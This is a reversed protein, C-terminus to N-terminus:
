PTSVWRNRLVDLIWYIFALYTILTFIYAIEGPVGFSDFITSFTAGVYVPGTLFVLLIWKVVLLTIFIAAGAFQIINFVDTSQLWELQSVVDKYASEIGLVDPSWEEPFVGTFNIVIMSLNIFFVAAFLKGFDLM